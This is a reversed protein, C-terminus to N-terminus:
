SREHNKSYLHRFLYFGATGAGGMILALGAAIFLNRANPSETATDPSNEPLQQGSLDATAPEELITDNNAPKKQKPLPTNTKVALATIINHSGPTPTTSWQWGGGTKNYSQSRPANEYSATDTVTGDPWLLEVGDKKDELTIKTEPRKLIVYSQGPLMTGQVFSYTTVVGETDRIKWGSLDVSDANTNYLEIWENEADPGDPAPIMENIVVGSQYVPAPPPAPTEKVTPTETNQTAQPAAGTSNAAKPTGSAEASTQWQGSSAREMTQKTKNDGAPWGGSGNAEDVLNHASDYLKVDMGTNTLTGSYIMDAIGEVTSSKYNRRALFFGMAGIGGKLQITIKGDASEITWGSLDVSQDTMNHLEIWEDSASTASGMWAVENIVVDGQSAAAILPMAFLGASVIFATAIKKM